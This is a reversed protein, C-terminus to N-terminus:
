GTANLLIFARFAQTLASPCICQLLVQMEGPNQEGSFLGGLDPRAAAVLEREHQARQVFVDQQLLLM